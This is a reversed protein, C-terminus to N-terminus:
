TLTSAFITKSSSSTGSHCTFNQISKLSILHYKLKGEKGSGVYMTVHVKVAFVPVEIFKAEVVFPFHVKILKVVPAGESIVIGLPCDLAM